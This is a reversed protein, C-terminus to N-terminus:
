LDGKQGASEGLEQESWEVLSELPGCGSAETPLLAGAFTPSLSKEKLSSKRM